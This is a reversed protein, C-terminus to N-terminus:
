SPQKWHKWHKATFEDAIALSEPTGIDIFDGKVPIVRIRTGLILCNPIVVEEFSVPSELVGKCIPLGDPIFEFMEPKIFYIGANIYGPTSENKRISRLMLEANFLLKGFRSCDEQWAALMSIWADSQKPISVAYPLDDSILLSDGNFVIASHDKYQEWANRIAGATGRPSREEAVNTLPPLDLTNLIEFAKERQYGTAIATRQIGLSKIQWLVRQIFPHGAVEIFPKPITPHLHAIRTGKGGALVIAVPENSDM